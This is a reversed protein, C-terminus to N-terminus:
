TGTRWWWCRGEVKEVEQDLCAALHAALSKEGPVDAHPRIELLPELVFRRRLVGPHPLTLHAQARREKGFLLLDLDLTRPAKGPGRVRGHEAEVHLLDALLDEPGMDEPCDLIAVANLYRPQTPDTEVPASEYLSSVAVIPLGISFLGSRLTRWRDGLNTGLGVAAEPM